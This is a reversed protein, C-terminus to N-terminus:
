RRKFKGRMGGDDLEDVFVWVNKRRVKLVSMRHDTTIVANALM